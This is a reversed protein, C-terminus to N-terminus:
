KVTSSIIGFIHEHLIQRAKLQDTTHVSDLNHNITYNLMGEKIFQQIILEDFLENELLRTMKEKREKDTM